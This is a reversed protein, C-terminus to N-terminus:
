SRNSRLNTPSRSTSWCRVRWSRRGSDCTSALRGQYRANEAFRLGQEESDTIHCFHNVTIHANGLPVGEAAFADKIVQYGEFLIVALGVSGILYASGFDDYPIKLPRGRGRAHRPRSLRRRTPLVLDAIFQGQGTLLRRDERRLLSRGVYLTGNDSM